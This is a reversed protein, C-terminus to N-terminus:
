PSDQDNPKQFYRLCHPRVECHRSKVWLPCQCSCSHTPPNGPYNHDEASRAQYWRPVSQFWTLEVKVPKLRVRQYQGCPELAM